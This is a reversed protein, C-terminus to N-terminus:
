LYKLIAKTSKSVKMDHLEQNSKKCLDCFEITYYVTKQVSELLKVTTDCFQRLNGFNSNTPILESILPLKELDIIFSNLMTISNPAKVQQLVLKLVELLEKITDEFEKSLIKGYKVLLDSQLNSSLM